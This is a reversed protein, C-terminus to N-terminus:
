APTKIVDKLVVRQPPVPYVVEAPASQFTASVQEYYNGAALAKTDATLLSIKAQGLTDGSQPLLTVGAGLTKTVAVSDLDNLANNLEYKLTQVAYAGSQIDVAEGDVKITVVLTKAEGRFHERM